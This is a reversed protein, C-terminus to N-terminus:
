AAEVVKETVVGPITVGRRAAEAILLPMLENLQKRELDSIIQTPKGELLQLKETFASMAISLDRLSAESVTKDDIYSQILHLKERYAKILEADSIAQVPTEEGEHKVRLRRLSSMRFREPFGHKKMTENVDDVAHEPIRPDKPADLPVYQAKALASTGREDVTLGLKRRIYRIQKDVVSRSVGLESCIEPRTKGSQKLDWVRQQKPTLPKGITDKRLPTGM